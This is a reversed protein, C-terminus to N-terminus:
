NLNLVPAQGALWMYFSTQGNVHLTWPDTNTGDWGYPDIPLWQSGGNVGIYTGFHLHPGTSCGTNGSYGIVQGSTVIENDTVSLSSLHGYTTMYQKMDPGTHVLIVSLSSLSPNGPLNACPSAPYWGAFFVRGNAVAKIETGEAMSWDYGAHGDSYANPDGINRVKGDFGVFTGNSDTFSLHAPIDHDFINGIPHDGDFPKNFFAQFSSSSNSTNGTGDGGGGGSCATFMLLLAVPVSRSIM